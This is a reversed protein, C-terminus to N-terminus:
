SNCGDGGSQLTLLAVEPRCFARIALKATGVGRSVFMRTRELNHRTFRLFDGPGYVGYGLSSRELTQTQTWLAQGNPPCVQGGHTHGCVVLDVPARHLRTVIEPSHALLIKPADDPLGRNAKDLRDRDESPDDVGLIWLTTGNARVYASDNMLLHGAQQMEMVIPITESERKHEGNGFTIFTGFQPRAARLVEVAIRAAQRTNAADGPVLMLDCDIGALMRALRRERRGMSVADPHVHVDSVVLVRLGHLASPWRPPCIVSRTLGIRETEARRLGEAALGVAVGALVTLPEM